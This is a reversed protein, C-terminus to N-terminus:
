GKGAHENLWKLPDVWQGHVSIGLHLHPGTSNGTSGVEAFTEGFEVKDGVHVDITGTAIHGYVTEFQMGDIDSEIVVAQGYGYYTGAVTVKGAAIAHIPTGYEPAFDIGDHFTSCFSCNTVQRAGFSSSIPAGEPFPWGIPGPSAADYEYTKGDEGAGAVNVATRTPTTTSTTSPSATASPAPTASATPTPKPTTVDYNDRATTVPRVDGVTLQQTSRTIRVWADTSTGASAVYDDPYRFPAASAATIPSGMTVVLGAVGALVGAHRLRPFRLMM